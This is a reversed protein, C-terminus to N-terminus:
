ARAPVLSAFATRIRARIAVAALLIAAASALVSRAAADPAPAGAEVAASCASAGLAEANPAGEMRLYASTAAACDRPTGGNWQPARTALFVLAAMVILVALIRM